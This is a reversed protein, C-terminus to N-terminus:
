IRFNRHPVQSARKRLEGDTLPSLGKAKLYRVARKYEEVTAPNGRLAAANQRTQFDNAWSGDANQTAVLAKAGADCGAFALTYERPPNADVFFVSFGLVVLVSAAALCCGLTWGLFRGRGSREPEALGPEYAARLRDVVERYAPGLEELQEDLDRSM